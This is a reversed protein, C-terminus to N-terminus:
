SILPINYSQKENVAVDTMADATELVHSITGGFYMHPMKAISYFYTEIYYYISIFYAVDSYMECCMMNWQWRPPILM